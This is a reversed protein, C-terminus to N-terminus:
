RGNKKKERLKKAEARIENYVRDVWGYDGVGISRDSYDACRDSLIKMVDEYVQAKIERVNSEPLSRLAPAILQHAEHIAVEQKHADSTDNFRWAQGLGLSVPFLTEVVNELADRLVQITADKEQLLDMLVDGTDAEGPIVRKALEDLLYKYENNQTRFTEILESRWEVEGCTKADYSLCNISM